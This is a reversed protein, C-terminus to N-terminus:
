KGLVSLNIETQLVANNKEVQINGLQVIYPMERLSRLFLLLDSFTGQVRVNMDLQKLEETDPDRVRNASLTEYDNNTSTAADEINEIFTLVEESSLTADELQKTEEEVSELEDKLQTNLDLKKQEKDLEIRSNQYSNKAEDLGSSMFRGLIFVGVLAVIFVSLSIYLKTSTKNM